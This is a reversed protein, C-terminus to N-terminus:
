RYFFKNYKNYNLLSSQINNLTFFIHNADETNNNIATNHKRIPVIITSAADSIDPSLITTTIKGNRHIGAIIIKIIEIIEIFLSNKSLAVGIIARVSIKAHMNSYKIFGTVM